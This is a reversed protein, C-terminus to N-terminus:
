IRTPPLAAPVDHALLAERMAWLSSIEQPSAGRDYAAQLARDIARLEHVAEPAHGAAPAPTPTPTPPPPRLMPALIAVALVALASAGGLQRRRVRAARAHDIRAWLRAPPAVPPLGALRDIVPDRRHM